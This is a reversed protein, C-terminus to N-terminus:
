EVTRIFKQPDLTLATDLESRHNEDVELFLFAFLPKTQYDIPRIHLLSDFVSKLAEYDFMQGEAVASRKEVIVMAFQLGKKAEYIDTWVPRKRESFYEYVNVGFAYLAIDTSCWGAFRLPNVEIPRVVDNQDIRVEVHLPVGRLDLLTGLQNLFTEVAALRSAIIDASTVYLRDGMDHEGNFRHELINLVVPSNDDDYYADIAYETGEIVSEILFTSGNLVEKPFSSSAADTKELIEKQVELWEIESNVRYVGASLFGVTPKIIFPQAIDSFNLAAIEERGIEKFYIDPFMHSTAERFKQKDKFLEIKKLVESDKGLLDVIAAIANESNTYLWSFRNQALIERAQSCSVENVGKPLITKSFATQLVPQQSELLYNVAVDSIYPADFIFM